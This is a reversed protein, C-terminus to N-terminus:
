DDLINNPLNQQPKVHRFTYTHAISRPYTEFRWCNKKMAYAEVM